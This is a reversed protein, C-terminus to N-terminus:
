KLLQLTEKAMSRSNTICRDIRLSACLDKNKWAGWEKEDGLFGPYLELGDIEKAKLLKIQTQLASNFMSLEEDDSCKKKGGQRCEIYDSRDYHYVGAYIKANPFLQKAEAVYAAYNSWNGRYILYLAVRDVKDRADLPLTEPAKQIKEIENEYLTVGFKLAKNESKVAAILSRIYEAKDQVHVQYLFGWLDDISVEKLLPNKLSLKSYIKARELTSVPDSAKGFAISFFEVGPTPKYAAICDSPADTCGMRVSNVYPAAAETPKSGWAM